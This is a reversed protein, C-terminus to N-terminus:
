YREVCLSFLPTLVDIGSNEPIKDPNESIKGPNEVFCIKSPSSAGGASGDGLGSIVVIFGNTDSQSHNTIV